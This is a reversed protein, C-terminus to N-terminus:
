QVTTQFILTQMFDGNGDTTESCSILKLRDMFLEPTRYGKGEVAIRLKDALDVAQTYTNGHCDVTLTVTDIHGLQGNLDKNYEATLQSRSYVIFPYTTNEHAILAFIKSTPCINMLDQNGECIKKFYKGVVIGTEM